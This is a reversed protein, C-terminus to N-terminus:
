RELGQAEPLLPQRGLVLVLAWAQAQPRLLLRWM